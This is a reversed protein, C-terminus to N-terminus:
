GSCWRAVWPLAIFVFFFVFCVNCLIVCSLVHLGRHLPFCNFPSRGPHLIDPISIVTVACIWYLRFLSANPTLLLHHRITWYWRLAQSQCVCYEHENWSRIPDVSLVCWYNDSVRRANDRWVPLSWFGEECTRTTLKHKILSALHRHLWVLM